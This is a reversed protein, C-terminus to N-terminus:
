HTSYALRPKSSLLTNIYKDELEIRMALHEGLDSLQQPFKKIMEPSMKNSIDYLDNFRIAVKTTNIIKHYVKDSLEMIEYRREVGDEIRRYIEFHGTAIYDIMVECFEQLLEQLTEADDYAEVHNSLNYYQSLVANRESILQKIEKKTRTRREFHPQQKVINM